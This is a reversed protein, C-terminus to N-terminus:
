IKIVIEKENIKNVIRAMNITDYIARHQEGEFKLGLSNMTKRVGCKKNIQRYNKVILSLNSHPLSLLFSQSMDIKKSQSESIIKNKDFYGWSSWVQVNNSILFKDLENLAVSLNLGNDVDEQKIHTLTKCFDTLDKHIVPKVFVTFTNKLDGKENVISCGIEIIEMEDRPMQSVIKKYKDSEDCTCELDILAILKEKNM